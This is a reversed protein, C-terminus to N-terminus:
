KRRRKVCAKFYLITDKRYFMSESNSHNVSISKSMFIESGFVLFLSNNHIVNSDRECLIHKSLQVDLRKELFWKFFFFDDVSVFKLHKDHEQSKKSYKTFGFHSLTYLERRRELPTNSILIVRNKHHERGFFNFSQNFMSRIFISPNKIHFMM